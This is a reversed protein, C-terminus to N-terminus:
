VENVGLTNLSHPLSGVSIVYQQQTILFAVTICMGYAIIYFSGFLTLKSIKQRKSSENPNLRFIATFCYTLCGQAPLNLIVPRQLM